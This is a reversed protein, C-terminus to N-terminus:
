VVGAKRLTTPIKLPKLNEDDNYDDVGNNHEKDKEQGLRTKTRGANRVIDFNIKALNYM